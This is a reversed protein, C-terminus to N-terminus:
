RGAAAGRLRRKGPRAGGSGRREPSVVLQGDNKSDRGVVVEGYSGRGINGLFAVGDVEMNGAADLRVAARTALSTASMTGALGARGAATTPVPPSPPGSMPLLLAPSAASRSRRPRNPSATNSHHDSSVPQTQRENDSPAALARRSASCFLQSASRPASDCACRCLVRPAVPCSSLLCTAALRAVPVLYLYWSHPAARFRVQDRAPPQDVLRLARPRRSRRRHTGTVPSRPRHLERSPSAPAARRM